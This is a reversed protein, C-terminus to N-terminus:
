NSAVPLRPERSRNSVQPGDYKIEVEQRTLKIGPEASPDRVGELFSGSVEHRPCIWNGWLQPGPSSRGQTVLPAKMVVGKECRAQTIASSCM